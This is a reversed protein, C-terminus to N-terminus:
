FIALAILLFGTGPNGEGLHYLGTFFAILKLM